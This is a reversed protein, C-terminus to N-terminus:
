ARQSPCRLKWRVTRLSFSFRSCPYPLYSRARPSERVGELVDFKRADSQTHHSYRSAALVALYVLMGIALACLAAGVSWKGVILGGAAPGILISAESGLSFAAYAAPLDAAEVLQGILKRRYALTAPLGLAFIVVLSLLAALTLTQRLALLALAASVICQAFLAAVAIIKADSRDSLTGLVPASLLSPLQYAVILAGLLQPSHWANLVWWILAIWGIQAGLQTVAFGIALARLQGNRRLLGLM